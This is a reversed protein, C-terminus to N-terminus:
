IGLFSFYFFAELVKLKINFLHKELKSYSIFYLWPITCYIKINLIYLMENYWLKNKLGCKFKQLTKHKYIFLNEKQAVNDQVNKM